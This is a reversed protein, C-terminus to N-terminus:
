NRKLRRRIWSPSRRCDLVAHVQVEDLHIDYYVAFPFRKALARHSGYVKAHLGAYIALSDIDSFLADIFYTGLGPAQEKYFHYGEILDEKASELIRLRM